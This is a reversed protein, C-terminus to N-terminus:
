RGRPVPVVIFTNDVCPRRIQVIQSQGRELQGRLSPFRQDFYTQAAELRDRFTEKFIARDRSFEVDGLYAVKNGGSSFVRTTVDGCPLVDPGLGHDEHELFKVHFIHFLQESGAKWMVFGDTPRAMVTPPARVPSKQVGGEVYTPRVNVMYNQPTIGLVFISEGPRLDVKEDLVGTTSACGAVHVCLALTSWFGGLSRIM